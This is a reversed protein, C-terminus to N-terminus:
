KAIYAEACIKWQRGAAKKLVLLMIGQGASTDVTGISYGMDGDAEAVLTTMGRLVNGTKWSDGIAAAIAARGRIPDPGAILLADDVYADACAGEADNRKSAALFRANLADVEDRFSMAGERALARM